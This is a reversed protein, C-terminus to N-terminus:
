SPTERPRLSTSSEPYPRKYGESITDSNPGRRPGRRRPRSVRTRALVGLLCTGLFGGMGHVGWVDLADDYGMKTLGYVCAYCFIASATGIVVAAWPKVFGAAPTITALGAIAGVCVGVLSPKGELKWEIFMWVLLAVSASIETNILAYAAVSDSGLASGGNFGFWGFWLLATGLAVYPVNHPTTDVPQGELKERSPLAMVTALASFGATVHVVLGGAFDCVGWTGLWGNPGWVWHCWPFYVLHVWLVVFVLFPGFKIREAFAGTMLAPTIVAFMGQYAAFVLGPIGEVYAEGMKGRGEHPLQKYNVRNLMAFSSPDGIFRGSAGFCLSFGWVVWVLTIIGMCRRPANRNPGFPRLIFFSVM